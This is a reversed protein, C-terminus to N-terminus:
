WYNKIYFFFQLKADEITHLVKCRRNYTVIKICGHKTERLLADENEAWSGAQKGTCEERGEM